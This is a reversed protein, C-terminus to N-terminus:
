PEGFLLVDVEEPQRTLGAHDGHELFLYIIDVSQVNNKNKSVATERELKDM